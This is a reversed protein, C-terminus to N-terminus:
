AQPYDCYNWAGDTIVDINGLWGYSRDFFAENVPIINNLNIGIDQQYQGRNFYSIIDYLTQEMVSMMEVPSENSLKPVDLVYLEFSLTRTNNQLGSSQLPRLFVYPYSVNQSSADLFDITGTNFSHVNLHANCAEQFIDVIRSYSLQPM